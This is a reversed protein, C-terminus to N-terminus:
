SALSHDVQSVTQRAAVAEENQWHAREAAASDVGMLPCEKSPGSHQMRSYRCREAGAKGVPRERDTSPEIQVQGTVAAIGCLQLM